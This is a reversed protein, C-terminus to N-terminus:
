PSPPLPAGLFEQVLEVVDPRSLIGLHDADFGVVRVADAKAAPVLESAVSVTGDNEDPLVLSRSAHHGYILLHDVRGKLPRALVAKQFDSGTVMDRWSPVVAPGFKVGMAAAEHGGWPTSISVFRRVYHNGEDLVNRAVFSRSVLGGMSHAVVDLRRFGLRAHLLDVASDLADGLEHLRRGSPYLYFWAQYKTRDLASFFTRWDQPSGAAGYVFLVPIRQPDYPELFYIGMGTERPFSAPEWLAKEGRVASFRPDELDAVDGLGIPISWGTVTEATTREGRFALAAAGLAPLPANPPAPTLTARARRTVGNVVVPAFRGHEDAAIWVPEGADYGDSANTDDYALLYQNGGRKVFFAFVGLRGVRVRDLSLVQNQPRDWEVVLAYLRPFREADEVVGSVIYTAAMFDLDSELKVFKACDLLPLVAGALLALWAFTRNKV